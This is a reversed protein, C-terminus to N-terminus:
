WVDLGQKRFKEILIQELETAPTMTRPEPEVREARARWADFRRRWEEPDIRQPDSASERESADERARTAAHDELVVVRVRRGALENAHQSVEEWTGELVQAQPDEDMAGMRCRSRM